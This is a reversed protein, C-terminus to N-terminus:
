HNEIGSYIIQARHRELKIEWEQRKKLQADKTGALSVNSKKKKIYGCCRAQTKMKHGKRVEVFEEERKLDVM